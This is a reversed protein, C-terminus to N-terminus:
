LGSVKSTLPAFAAETELENESFLGSTKRLAYKEQELRGLLQKVQEDWHSHAKKLGAATEWGTFEKVAAQTSEDATDAGNNTGPQIKNEISNAAAKKKAPAAALDPSTNGLLPPTSGGGSDAPLQNLRMGSQREAVAEKHQAWEDDFSM